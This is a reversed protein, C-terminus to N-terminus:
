KKSKKSVREEVEDDSDSAFRKAKSAYTSLRVNEEAARLVKLLRLKEALLPADEHRARLCTERENM